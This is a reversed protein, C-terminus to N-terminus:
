SCSFVESKSAIIESLYHHDLLSKFRAYLENSEILILYNVILALLHIDLSSFHFNEIGASSLGNLVHLIHKKRGM